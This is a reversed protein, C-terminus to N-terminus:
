WAMARKLSVPPAKAVGAGRSVIGSVKWSRMFPSDWKGDIGLESVSTVSIELLAVQAIPDPCKEPM